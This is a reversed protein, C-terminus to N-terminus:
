RVPALASPHAGVYRALRRATFKAGLAFRAVPGFSAGAALGTFHLGAVSSEFNRSLVPSGGATKIQSRLGPPLFSVRELDVQYGTGAILHDAELKRMGGDALKLSVNVRGGAVEVRELSTGLHMPVKGEVQNRVFWGPAPGLYLRVIDLRTQQPLYHFAQPLDACLRYKWGYGIGSRPYHLRDWVSRSKSPPNHFAIKSKRAVIQVDAGEQHLLGAIDVASAGSGVVIVAKGKFRDLEHHHSAHTVFEPSIGAFVPPLYDFYTIGVAIIVRRATLSGGDALRLEFGSPGRDIESVIRDELDPVFRQQFALGYSVFADLPVPHGVDAYPLKQESAYRALAFSGQPDYLNSEFGESKLFMGKPM